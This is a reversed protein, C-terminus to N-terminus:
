PNPRHPDRRSRRHSPRHAVRQWRKSARARARGLADRDARRIRRRGLKCRGAELERDQRDHSRLDDHRRRRRGDARHPDVGGRQGDQGRTRAVALASGGALDMEGVTRAVRDRAAVPARAADRESRRGDGGHAACGRCARLRRVRFLLLLGRRAVLVLLPPAAPAGSAPSDEDARYRVVEACISSIPTRATRTSRWTTLQWERLAPRIAQTVCPKSREVGLKALFRGARSSVPPLRLGNLPRRTLTASISRWRAWRSRPRRAVHTTRTGAGCRLCHRPRAIPGGPSVHPTAWSWSSPRRRLTACVKFVLPTPPRSPRGCTARGCSTAGSELHRNKPPHKPRIPWM